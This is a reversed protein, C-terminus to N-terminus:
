RIVGVRLLGANLGGCRVGAAAAERLSAGEDLAAALGATFADGSGTTNVPPVPEFALESLEGGESFWLTGAGRTLVMRCHYAAWLEACLKKVREKVADEDPSLGNGEVLDPAFTQAFEFLNPKVLDPSFPLSEALDPGRVDLLIKRGADRAARTMFPVLDGSFGAAKTGSVVVRGAGPLLRLYAERLREGTGEGVPESEEVLETVGRDAETILTYCFRIPSGSEVWEVTLGDERCLELFLPRLSGGLQTLHVCHKGLQTLVRSVNIGKGSADLRHRATRNVTDQVVRPFCLTKQLTPNMCVSLYSQRNM